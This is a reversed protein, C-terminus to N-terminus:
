YGTISCSQIGRLEAYTLEQLLKPFVPRVSLTGRHEVNGTLTLCTAIPTYKLM